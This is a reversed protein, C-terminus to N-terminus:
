ASIGHGNWSKCIREKSMSKNNRNNNSKTKKQQQQQQEKQKNIKNTQSKNTQKNIEDERACEKVFWEILFTETDM